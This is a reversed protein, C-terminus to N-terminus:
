ARNVVTGCQRCRWVKQRKGGMFLAALSIIPGLVWGVVPVVFFIVIGVVFVILALVIGSCNGSSVVAKKMQGGCLPCVPNM